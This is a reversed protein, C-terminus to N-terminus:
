VMGFIPVHIGRHHLVKGLSGPEIRGESVAEADRNAVRDPVCAGRIVAREVHRAECLTEPRVPKPFLPTEHLTRFIVVDDISVPLLANSSEGIREIGTGPISPAAGTHCGAEAQRSRPNRHQEHSLFKQLIFLPRVIENGVM